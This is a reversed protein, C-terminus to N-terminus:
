KRFEFQGVIRLIDFGEAFPCEALAGHRVMISRTLEGNFYYKDRYTEYRSLAEIKANVDEETVEALFHPFFGHSSRVVDFGLVTIGRFARLAEDTMTNHDQHVDQRSHTFILDPNFDGRLKLFYELIEQRSDPFVRTTFPGLLINEKPVGLVAMSKYHEDKVDKLDPNRQNDSLTVCLVDTEKVVHHLLAGCGLEIDDPHAGLFLVRKGFFFM